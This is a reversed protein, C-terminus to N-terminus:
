DEGLVEQRIKRWLAENEIYKSEEEERFVDLIEQKELNEEDLSIEFTIQEDREVLDLDDVISPFDKFGGKRIQFLREIEFQVRKDVDGEHLIGRFREMIAHMGRPSVEMLCM